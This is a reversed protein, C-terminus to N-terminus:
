HSDYQIDDIHLRCYELRGDPLIWAVESDQPVRMGNRSVYNRYRGEWPTPTTERYRAPTYCRTIEGHEGFTFELSVLVGHDAVMALAHTDDIAEWSVNGGPLLLTPFWVAEALWRQLSASAVEATGKQEAVTLLGGLKARTAGEGNLYSDRVRVPALPNMHITADWVFGPPTAAFAQRATFTSWPSEFGGARFSGSQRVQGQQYIEQGPTLAFQFYRAVPAPLGELQAPTFTLMRGTKPGAYLRAAQNRTEQNWMWTSVGSAILIGSGLGAIALLARRTRNKM